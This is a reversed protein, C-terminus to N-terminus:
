KQLAAQLILLLMGFVFLVSGVFGMGICWIYIKILM